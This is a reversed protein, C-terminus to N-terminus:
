KKARFDVKPLLIEEHFPRLLAPRDHVIENMLMYSHLVLGDDPLDIM